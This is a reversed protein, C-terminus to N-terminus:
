GDASLDGKIQQWVLYGCVFTTWIAVPLLTLM